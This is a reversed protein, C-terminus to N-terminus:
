GNLYVAYGVVGTSFMLDSLLHFNTQIILSQM